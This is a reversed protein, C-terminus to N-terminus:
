QSWLQRRLKQVLRYYEELEAFVEPLTGSQEGAVALEIFLAPFNERQRNLADELSRGKGLDKAIDGTADRLASPGRKSQQRFVDLLSLGAGLYHRLSRCLEVLASLPAARSM